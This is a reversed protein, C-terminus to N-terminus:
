CQVVSTVEIMDRSEEGVSLSLQNAKVVHCQVYYWLRIASYLIMYQGYEFFAEVM